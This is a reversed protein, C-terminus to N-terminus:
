DHISFHVMPTFICTLISSSIIKSTSTQSEMHGMFELMGFIILALFVFGRTNQTTNIPHALSFRVPECLTMVAEPQFPYFEDRMTSLTLPYLKDRTTNKKM